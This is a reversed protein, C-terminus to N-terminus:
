DELEGLQGRFEVPLMLTMGDRDTIRFKGPTWKPSLKVVRIAEQSLSEDPSQIVKVDGMTGDRMITLQVFVRGIIRKQRAEEPYEVKSMVWEHFKDIGGDMFKPMYYYDYGGTFIGPDSKKSDSPYEINFYAGYQVSIPKGDKMAPTWKPSGVLKAQVRLAALGTTTQSAKIRSISGDEEIYFEVFARTPTSLSDTQYSKAREEGWHIFTKIDGDLFKPAIDVTDYLHYIPVEKLSDSHIKENPINAKASFVLLILFLSCLSERLALKMSKDQTIM